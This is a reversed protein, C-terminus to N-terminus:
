VFLGVFKFKKEYNFLLLFTGKFYKGMSFPSFGEPKFANGEDNIFRDPNFEEPKDWMATDYNVSM